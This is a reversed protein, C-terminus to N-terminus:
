RACKVLKRSRINGQQASGAMLARKWSGNPAIRHVALSPDWASNQVTLSAPGARCCRSCPTHRATPRRPNVAHFDVTFDDGLLEILDDAGVYDDPDIGRSKM